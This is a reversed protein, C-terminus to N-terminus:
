EPIIVQDGPLLKPDKAPDKQLDKLRYLGVIKGERVLRIKDGRGFGDLGGCDGIASSLTSDPSWQLRQPMRVGGSISVYRGNVAVTILVSPHSFIKGSILGAEMARELQAPRLGAAKIEGLLPVKVTGDQDITCQQAFDGAYEQPVGALRLDFVNGVRLPAVTQARALSYTLFIFIGILFIGTRM